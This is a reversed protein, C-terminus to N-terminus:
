LLMASISVIWYDLHVRGGEKQLSMGVMYGGVVCTTLKCETYFCGFRVVTVDNM